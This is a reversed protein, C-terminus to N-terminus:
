STVTNTNFYNKTQPKFAVFFQFVLLLIISLVLPLMPITMGKFTVIVDEPTLQYAIVATVGLASFALTQVALYVRMVILTWPKQHWIGYVVPGAGLTFLDIELVEIFRWVAILAVVIYLVMLVRLLAPIKSM